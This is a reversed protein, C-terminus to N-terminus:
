SNGSQLFDAEVNIFEVPHDCVQVPSELSANKFQSILSKFSFAMIELVFKRLFM